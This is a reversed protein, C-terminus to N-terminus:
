PYYLILLKCFLLISWATLLSESKEGGAKEEAEEVAGGHIHM